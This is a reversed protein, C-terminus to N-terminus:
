FVHHSVQLQIAIIAISHQIVHGAVLDIILWDDDVVRGGVVNLIVVLLKDVHKVQIFKLQIGFYSVLVQVRVLYEQVDLQTVLHDLTLQRFTPL